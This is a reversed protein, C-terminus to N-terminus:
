PITQVTIKYNNQITADAGRVVAFYTGVALNPVAVRVIGADNGVMSGVGITVGSGNLMEVVLGGPTPDYEIQALANAGAVEVDFRFFDQDGTPCIALQVITIDKTVSPINTLTPDGTSNNPELPSDDACTFVGGENADPRIVPDEGMRECIEVGVSQVVCEYGDPCVPSGTGCRFPSDGLDPDFTNCGSFAITALSLSALLSFPLFTRSM